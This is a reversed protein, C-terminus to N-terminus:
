AALPELTKFLETLERRLEAGVGLFRLGVGEASLRAVQAPTTGLSRGNAILQVDVCDGLRLPPTPESVEAGGMSLNLLRGRGEAGDVSWVADGDVGFRPFARRQWDPRYM